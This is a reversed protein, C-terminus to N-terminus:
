RFKFGVAKYDGCCCGCRYKEGKGNDQIETVDFKMRDSGQLNCTKENFICNFCGKKITLGSKM